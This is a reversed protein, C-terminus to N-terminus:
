APSLGIAASINERIVPEVKQRTKEVLDFPEVGPHQWGEGTESLTRFTFYQTHRAKRGSAQQFVQGTKGLESTRVMGQYNSLDKGAFEVPIETNNKVADFVVKPMPPMTVTGPTGHRFPVIRYAVGKATVKYKGTRIKSRMDFSKFGTDLASAYPAGCIVEYSTPGLATVYISDAYNGSPFSFADAAANQWEAKVYEAAEAVAGQLRAMKAMLNNVGTVDVKISVLV